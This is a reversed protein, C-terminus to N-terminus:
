SQFDPTSPVSRLAPVRFSLINDAVARGPRGPTAAFEAILAARGNTQDWAARAHEEGLGYTRFLEIAEDVTFALEEEHLVGLMQKSRMRWLPTPPLSRCTILAHVDAPLLPLLRRFFAVVWEADHVQHLDEIVILLPEGKTEGLQFVFADALLEPNGGQLSEALQNLSTANLGPRQRRVAATLYECFLSLENDTADVKYWAVTRGMNRSFDVALMTKGSGARGNLITANASYLNETLRRLLRPRSVRPTASPVAIKDHIFHEQSKM